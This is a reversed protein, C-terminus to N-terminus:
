DRMARRQWLRWPGYLALGSLVAVAGWLLRDSETEILLWVSVAVAVLPVVPGFPVRFSAEPADANRRLALVAFCTPIYQAIRAVVSIVALKEFGQTLALTLALLSTLVIAFAPVRQANLTGFWGPLLRERSLAYLARPTVLAMFANIGLVSIAIGVQIFTGGTAGLFTAAADGVPNDSEALGSLTGTCVTWVGMYLLFITVMGLLLARPLNRRPEKVEAAPIVAGEFGVYAYLMMMTTGGLDGYGKPALPTFNGTDLFWLGLLVFALLPVVKLATLATNIRGGIQVGRLNVFTLTAILAVILTPRGVSSGAGHWLPILFNVFLNALAAWSVVRAIWTAWGVEFAAADGLGVQSYRMAGGTGRFRSAAEAYCLALLGALFAGILLAYIAAPGMRAAAKGPLAFIGTGIVSGVSLAYADFFHLHRHLNEKSGHM